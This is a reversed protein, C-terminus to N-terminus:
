AAGLAAPVAAGVEVVLRPLLHLPRKTLLVSEGRPWGPRRREELLPLPTPAPAPVMFPRQRQLVALHYSPECSVM